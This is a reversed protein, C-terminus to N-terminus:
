MHFGIVLSGDPEVMTAVTSASMTDRLAQVVEGIGAAVQPVGPPPQVPLNGGPNNPNGGGGGGGGDHGGDGGHDGGGGGGDHGGGGGDRSSSLGSDLLAPNAPIIASFVTQASSPTPQSIPLTAGGGIGQQM